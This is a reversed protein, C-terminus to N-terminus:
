GRAAKFFAAIWAAALASDLPESLSAVAADALAEPIRAGRRSEILAATFAPSM